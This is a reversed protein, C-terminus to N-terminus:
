KQGKKRLRIIAVLKKIECDVEDGSYIRSDETKETAFQIRMLDAPALGKRLLRGYFYWVAGYNTLEVEWYSANKWRSYEVAFRRILYEIKSM